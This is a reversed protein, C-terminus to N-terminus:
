IHQPGRESRMCQNVQIITSHIYCTYSYLRQTDDPFNVFFSLISFITFRNAAIVNRSVDSVLYVDHFDNTENAVCVQSFTDM